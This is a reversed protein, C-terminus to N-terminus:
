PSYWEFSRGGGDVDASESMDAYVRTGVVVSVLHVAGIIVTVGASVDLGTSLSDIM